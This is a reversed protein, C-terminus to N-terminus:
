RVTAALKELEDQSAQARVGGVLVTVEGVTRVLSEHGDPSVFDRWKVSGVNVTGIQRAKGTADDLFTTGRAGSFELYHEGVVYGVRVVGGEYARVNVVWGAPTTPVPGHTDAAFDFLAPAADVPRIRKSNSPSAQGFFWLPIVLLFVVALSRVMDLASERGRKKKGTPVPPAEIVSVGGNDTM